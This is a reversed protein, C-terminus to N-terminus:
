HLPVYAENIFQRFIISVLFMALMESLTKHMQDIYSCFIVALCRQHTRFIVLSLQSLYCCSLLLLSPYSVIHEIRFM